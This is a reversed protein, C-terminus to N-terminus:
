KGKERELAIQADLLYYESQKVHQIAIRGAEFRALDTKHVEELLKVHRTLAVIREEKKAPLELEAKLLREFSAVQLSLMGKGALFEKFVWDVEVKAALFRAEMLTKIKDPLASRALLEKVEEDKFAPRALHALSDLRMQLALEDDDQKSAPPPTEGREQGGPLPRKAYALTGGGVGLVAIALLVASVVKLKTLFMTHLVGDVLITISSSVASAAATGGTALLVATRTTTLALAPPLAASSEESLAASLAAATLALGRRTLRSRLLERARALRGSVTGAPWGLQRAAETFTKGELYCLVVPLRYKAPLRQVEEDLQRRLDRQVLEDETGTATSHECTLEATRRRAAQRRAQLATRYAVGYLWNGLLERKGLSKAKRLLVIFTAQFADEAAHVDPLLRRCVGLVMPGHRRLLGEFAAEDRQALFRDLLQVDELVAADPADALKRIHRLVTKLPGDAM